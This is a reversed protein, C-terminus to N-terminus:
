DLQRTNGYQDRYYLHSGSSYIVDNSGNNNFHIGYSGSTFKLSGSLNCAGLNSTGSVDLSYASVNNCSLNYCSINYSPMSINGVVSITSTPYIAQLVMCRVSGDYGAISISSAGSNNTMYLAGSGLLSTQLDHNNELYVRNDNILCGVKSSSVSARFELSAQAAGALKATFLPYTDNVSNTLVISSSLGTVRLRGSGKVDLIQGSEITCAALVGRITVNNFEADGNGKIQWGASGETFNGKLISDSGSLTITRATMASTKITNIDMSNAAIKGGSIETTNNNIDSAAGGAELKGSPDYGTSFTTDGNIQIKNGTIQATGDDLNITAITKGPTIASLQWITGDYWYQANGEDTKFWIEGEKPNTPEASQRYTKVGRANAQLQDVSISETTIHSGNITTTGGTVWDLVKFSGKVVVQGAGVETAINTNIDQNDKIDLLADGLNRKQSSLSLEIDYKGNNLDSHTIKAILLSEEIGLDLDIVKINTGVVLPCSDIEMYPYALVRVSYATSPDKFKELFQEARAMLTEPHTITSDTNFYARLGYNAISTADEVYEETHGSFDTLNLRREEMQVGYCYIRNYFTYDTSKTIGIINKGYRLQQGSDLEDKPHWILQRDKNVSFWGGGTDKLRFLARLITDGSCRLSRNKDVLAPPISGLTIPNDGTQFAILDALILPIKKSGTSYEFIKDDNLRDILGSCDYSYADRSISNKRLVFTNVVEETSTKILKYENFSTVLSNKSDSRPLNFGLRPNGDLEDSFSIGYANELIGVRENSPNYVELRFEAM